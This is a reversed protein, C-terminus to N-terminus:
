GSLGYDERWAVHRSFGVAEEGEGSAALLADLAAFTRALVSPM